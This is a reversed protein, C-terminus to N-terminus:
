LMGEDTMIQQIQEKTYGKRYLMHAYRVKEQHDAMDEIDKDHQCKACFGYQSKVSIFLAGCKKCRFNNSHTKYM